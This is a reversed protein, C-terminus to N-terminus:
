RASEARRHTLSEQAEPFNHVREIALSAWAGSHDNSWEEADRFMRPYKLVKATPLRLWRALDAPTGVFHSSDEPAREAIRRPVRRSRRATARSAQEGWQGAESTVRIGKPARRTDASRSATRKSGRGSSMKTASSSITTVGVSCPTSRLERRAPASTLSSPSECATTARISPRMSPLRAAASIPQCPGPSSRNSRALKPSM